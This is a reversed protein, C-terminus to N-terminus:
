KDLKIVLIQEDSDWSARLKKSTSFDVFMKKSVLRIFNTCSVRTYSRNINLKYFDADIETMNEQSVPKLFITRENEDYGLICYSLGKLVDECQKNLVINNNSITAQYESKTDKFWRVNM